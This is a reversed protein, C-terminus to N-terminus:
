ANLEFPLNNIISEPQGADAEYVFLRCWLWLQRFRKLYLRMWTFFKALLIALKNARHYIWIMWIDHKLPKHVKLKCDIKRRIVVFFNYFFNYAGSNEFM